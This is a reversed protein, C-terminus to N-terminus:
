FPFRRQTTTIRWRPPGVTGTTVIRSISATGIARRHMAVPLLDMGVFRTGPVLHPPDVVPAGVARISGTGILLFAVKGAEAAGFETRMMM